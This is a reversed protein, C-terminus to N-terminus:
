VRNNLLVFKADVIIVLKLFMVSIIGPWMIKRFVFFRM